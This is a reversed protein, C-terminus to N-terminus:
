LKDPEITIKDDSIYYEFDIETKGWKDLNQSIVLTPNELAVWSYKISKTSGLDKKKINGSFESFKINGHCERTSNVKKVVEGIICDRVATDHDLASDIMVYLEEKM